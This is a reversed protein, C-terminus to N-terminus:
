KAGSGCRIRADLFIQMHRQGEFPLSLTRSLSIDRTSLAIGYAYVPGLGNDAHYRLLALTLIDPTM